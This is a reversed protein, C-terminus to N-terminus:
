PRCQFAPALLSFPAITVTGRVIPLQHKGASGSRQFARRRVPLQTALGCQASATAKSGLAPPFSNRWRLGELRAYMTLASLLLRAAHVPACKLYYQVLHPRPSRWQALLRETQALLCGSRLDPHWIPIPHTPKHSCVPPAESCARAVRASQQGSDASLSGPGLAPGKGLWAPWHWQDAPGRERGICGRDCCQDGLRM